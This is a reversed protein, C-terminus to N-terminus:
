GFFGHVVGFMATVITSIAGILAAMELGIDSWSTRWARPKRLARIDEMLAMGLMVTATVGFVLSAIAGILLM